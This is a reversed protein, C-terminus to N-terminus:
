SNINLIPEFRELYQWSSCQSDDAGPTSPLNIALRTKQRARMGRLIRCHAWRLFRLRVQNFSPWRAPLYISLYVHPSHTFGIPRVDIAGAACTSRRRAEVARLEFLTGQGMQLREKARSSMTSCASVQAARRSRALLGGPFRCRSSVRVRVHVHVHVHAYVRVRGHVGVRVHVHAHANVRVHM